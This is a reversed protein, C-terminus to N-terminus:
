RARSTSGPRRRRRPWRSGGPTRRRGGVVHADAGRLRHGAVQEARRAGELATSVRARRHVVPEGRGVILMSSKSGSISRSTTRPSCRVSGSPSMAASLLEKPKPPWLTASTTFLTQPGVVWSGRAVRAFASAGADERPRRRKGAPHDACRSPHRPAFPAPAAVPPRPIGSSPAAPAAPAAAPAAPASWGPTAVADYTLVGLRDDVPLVRQQRPALEAEGAEPAPEHAPAERDGHEHHDHDDDECQDVVADRGSPATRPM